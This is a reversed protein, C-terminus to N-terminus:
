VIFINPLRRNKIVKINSKSRLDSEENKVLEKKLYTYPYQLYLLPMRTHSTKFLRKTHECHAYSLFLFHFAFVFTHFSLRSCFNRNDPFLVTYVPPKNEM